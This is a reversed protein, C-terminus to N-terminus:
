CDPVGVARALRAFPANTPFNRPLCLGTNNDIVLIDLQALDGLEVPIRGSLQNRDLMLESLVTLNGLEAPIRGTFRNNPIQLAELRTLNGIWVPIRGEIQTRGISLYELRRLNGIQSPLRGSFPGWLHLSRLEALNGIQSPIPGSLRDDAFSLFQLATLTGIQAPIRGRLGNLSLDLAAVRGAADTGVGYWTSLPESTLWNTNQGWNPGDLANYLAVLTQRDEEEVTPPTPETPSGNDSCAGFGLALIVVAILAGSRMRQTKPMM